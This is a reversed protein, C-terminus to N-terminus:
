ICCFFEYNVEEKKEEENKKKREKEKSYTHMVFEKSSAHMNNKSNSTLWRYAGYM